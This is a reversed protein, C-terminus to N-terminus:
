NKFKLISHIKRDVKSDNNPIELYEMNLSSALSFLTTQAYNANSKRAIFFGRNELENYFKENDFGYVSKLVDGRGYGDLIIYYIDPKKLDKMIKFASILKM